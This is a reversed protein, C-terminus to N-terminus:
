KKIAKFVGYTKPCHTVLDGRISLSRIIEFMLNFLDADPNNGNEIKKVIIELQEDSITDPQSVAIQDIIHLMNKFEKADKEVLNLDIINGTLYNLNTVPRKEKYLHM